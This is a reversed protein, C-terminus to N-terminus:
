LLLLIQKHVEIEGHTTDIWNGLQLETRKKKSYLFYPVILLLCFCLIIPGSIILPGYISKSAFLSNSSTGPPNESTSSSSHTVSFPGQYTSLSYTEMGSCASGKCQVHLLFDFNGNLVKNTLQKTLNGFYSYIQTYAEPSSLNSSSLPFQYVVTYAVAIIEAGASPLNRQASRISSDDFSNHFPINLPNSKSIM